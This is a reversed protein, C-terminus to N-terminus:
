TRIGRVDRGVMRHNLLDYSQGVNEPADDQRARGSRRLGKKSRRGSLHEGPVALPAQPEHLEVGAVLVLVEHQAEGWLVLAPERELLPWEELQHAIRRGVRVVGIDQD